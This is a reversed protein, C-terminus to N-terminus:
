KRYAGGPKFVEMFGTDKEDIFTINGIKKTGAVIYDGNELAIYKRTPAIVNANLKNALQQAFGYADKGTDCSLLRITQKKGYKKSHKLIRALFRANVSKEQGNIIMKITNVGGHAVIDLVGDPDVLKRKAAFKFFLKPESPYEIDGVSFRIGGYTKGFGGHYGAGM